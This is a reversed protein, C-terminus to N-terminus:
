KLHNKYPIKLYNKYLFDIFCVFVIIAFPSFYVVYRPPYGLNQFFIFPLLCAIYSLIIAPIQYFIKQVITLLISFLGTISLLAFLYNPKYVHEFFNIKIRSFFGINEDFGNPETAFFMRYWIAFNDRVWEQEGINPHDLGLRGGLLYNRIFLTALGFIVIFFYFFIVKWNSKVFFIVSKFFNLNKNEDYTHCFFIISLVIFIHDERLWVGLVGILSLILVSLINKINITTAYYASFVLLYMAYNETLGRGLLWRFNTTFFLFLFIIGGLLSLKPKVGLNKLILVLLISASIVALYEIYIQAFSSMGFLIHLIAFFYRIGPRFRFVEEGAILWNQNVVIDRAFTQFMTWDEGVDWWQFSELQFSTKNFIFFAFTPYLILFIDKFNLLNKNIKEKSFLIVFFIIILLISIGYGGFVDNHTTYLNLIKKTAIDILFYFTFFIISFLFIKLNDKFNKFFFIVVFISFLLFILFDFFIFLYDFKILNVNIKETFLNRNKLLSVNINNKIIVPDFFWDEGSFFLDGNLNYNGKKIFIKENLFVKYSLDQNSINIFSNNSASTKFNLYTDEKLILYSKIKYKIKIKFLDKYDNLFKTKNKKYNVDSLYTWDLPFNHINKWSFRQISSVDKKWFTDYTRIIKDDEDVFFQSFNIGVPPVFILFIKITLIVLILIKTLKNLLKIGWFFIPLLITLLITEHSSNWPLGNFFYSGGNPFALILTLILFFFFKSCFINKVM